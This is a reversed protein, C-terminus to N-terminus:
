RDYAGVLTYELYLQEEISSTIYIHLFGSRADVYTLKRDGIVQTVEGVTNVVDQGPFKAWAESVHMDHTFIKIRFSDTTDILIDPGGVTGQSTINTLQFDLGNTIRVNSVHIQMFDSDGPMIPHPISQSAIVSHDVSNTLVCTATNIPVRFHNYAWVDIIGSTLVASDFFDTADFHFIGTSFAPVQPVPSTSGHHTLIYSGIGATNPTTLMGNALLGLSITFERTQNPLVLNDLTFKQGLATDPIRILRDALSFKLLESKFALTLSNDSNTIVRSTDKVINQLSLNTTAIPVLMETSWNTKAEKKCSAILLLAACCALVIAKWRNTNNM